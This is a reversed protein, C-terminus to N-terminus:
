GNNARTIEVWTGPTICMLTITDKDSDLAFDAQLYLTGTDKVTITVSDSAAMLVLFQGPTGGNITSLDDAVGGAGALTHFTKTVTVADSAITLLGAAGVAVAPAYLNENAYVSWNTDAGGATAYVGYATSTGATDGLAGFYGGYTNKTGADTAGINGATGIIAKTDTTGVNTDAGTKAVQAYVGQYFNNGSTVVADSSVPVYIGTPGVNGTTATGVVDAIIGFASAATTVEVDVVGSTDTHSTSRANIYLREGAGFAHLVGGADSYISYNTDAGIASFYGGYATSTGATDGISAFYGGFTNKTGANTSGTNMASIYNGYLSYTAVSTDAGAKTVVTKEGYTDQSTATVVATHTLQNDINIIDSSGTTATTSYEVDIQEFDPTSDFGSTIWPGAQVPAAILLCCILIAFIKKM